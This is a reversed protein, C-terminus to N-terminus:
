PATRSAQRQEAALRLKELRTLPKAPPPEPAKAPEPKAEAVAAPAPAPPPPTAVPMTPPLPADIQLEVNGARSIITDGNQPISLQCFLGHKGVPSDAETKIKFTLEKTDKNFTMPEIMVKPPMGIIEAKADGEFPTTHNVKCLLLTEQGQECAPRQLEFRAYAEAVDLTTLQSSAWMGQSSGLVFIKWSKIEANGNANIPFLMESQGKPLKVSPGAGVGPSRYPLELNIDEDWGEKKHAIVKLNMSGDRVLPVKPVEIEIRFPIEDVVAVALRDVDKWRYLSQNPEGILFDARNTFGGRINQNPDAHKALFDVLAGNLQADATAEFVVPMTNQNGPMSDCHMTIGAPLNENLLVLDGGFNMRNASILTGFRNGKPVFIQQRYQGYRENRPIGLTLAPAVGQFEVRYVMDSGGRNLHDNIRVVYEADEPVTFRIYSDPGRSDDNGAIHRGDAFYINMVPDLGSRVRRAFCEVEFVQGKKAAFKFCDVDADTEIIGNMALPLEVPTGQSIENNPEQEFANGHQFLRFVNPTPSMGGEDEAFVGFDTVPTAPLAFKRVLEGAPMGLFKVEVEEGMKGGAPFPVKPRPFTGIHLRYNNGASYASERVEIFYKGDAPAVISAFGDQLALATDDNTALEFRKDDLIAVYPDFMATSLRMAVIEASIRQGKKAEVVFYDVDENGINGNIVHGLSIIQPTAFDSNPEVEEVVPLDEVYLTRYDSIGSATRVQVVHEGLRCDAAVRVKVKATNGEGKVDLVEMGADYFFVGQADGLNNGNFTLEHEAGRQVGRPMVNTLRPSAANACLSVAANLSLFFAIRTLLSM